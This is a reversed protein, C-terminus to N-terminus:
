FIDNINEKVDKYKTKREFNYNENYNKVKKRLLNLEKSNFQGLWVDKINMAGNLDRNIYHQIGNCNCRMERDKTTMDHHIKHCKNCTKSTYSEDVVSVNIGNLKSKYIIMESFKKISSVQYSKRFSKGSKTKQKLKSVDLDGIVIQKIGRKNCDKIYKSSEKKLYDNRTNVLREYAKGLQKKVKNFNRSGKKKSSLSKGLLKLRKYYKNVMKLSFRKVVYNNSDTALTKIGLDIGVVEDNTIVKKLPLEQKELIFILYFSNNSEKKLRFSSFELPINEETHFIFENLPLKFSNNSEKRFDIKIFELSTLQKKYSPLGYKNPNKYFMKYSNDINFFINSLVKNPVLKYEPFDKKILPLEKKQQYANTSLKYQSYLFKRHYIATNYLETTKFFWFNFLNIQEKSLNKLKIKSTIKM